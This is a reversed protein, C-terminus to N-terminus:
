PIYVSPQRADPIGQRTKVGGGGTLRASGGVPIDVVPDDGFQQSAKLSIPTRNVVTVHGQMSRMDQDQDRDQNKERDLIVTAAKILSAFVKESFIAKRQGLSLKLSHPHTFNNPTIARVRSNLVEIPEVAEITV